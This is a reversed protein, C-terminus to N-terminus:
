FLYYVNVLVRSIVSIKAPIHTTGYMLFVIGIMYVGLPNTLYRDAGFIRYTTIGKVVSLFAMVAMGVIIREFVNLSLFRAWLIHAIMVVKDWSWWFLDRVIDVVRDM